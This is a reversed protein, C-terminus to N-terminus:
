SVRDLENQLRKLLNFVEYSKELNIDAAILSDLKEQVQQNLQHLVEINIETEFPIEKKLDSTLDFVELWDPIIVETTLQEGFIDALAASGKEEGHTVFIKKPSVKFQKVWKLLATQDAHASFGDLNRIDARVMIEEGHIRVSKEGELLRRGLTGEAQFGVFLVTSEPRWLNHKLHHKIRGADAMGSASIIIAGGKKKNLEISEEVTRSFRLGPLYLPCIGSKARRLETAEADFYDHNRCFIETASIALPSDIYIDQGKIDGRDILRHLDFLLDQTREVAFAPIILNGGKQFTEHIIQNLADLRDIEQTHHRRGYTSEIILYDAFDIPTPDNI